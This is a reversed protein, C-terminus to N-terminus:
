STSIFSSARNRVATMRETSTAPLQETALSPVV